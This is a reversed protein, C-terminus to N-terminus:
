SELPITHPVPSGASKSLCYGTIVLGNYALDLNVSSLAGIVPIIAFFVGFWILSKQLFRDKIRLASMPLALISAPLMVYILLYGVGFGLGLSNM